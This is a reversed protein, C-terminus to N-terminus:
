RAVVVTGTAVVTGNAVARIGYTGDSLSSVVCRMAVDDGTLQMGDYLELVSRGMIDTVEVRVRRDHDVGRLIVLASSQTPNPSVLLREMAPTGREDEVSTVPPAQYDFGAIKYINGGFDGIWFNGDREDYAIGRANIVGDRGVLNLRALETSLANTRFKIIYCATLAAGASPFETCTQYLYGQGDTTLCRPGYFAQCANPQVDVLQGDTPNMVYMQRSGDREGGYLFGDVLELGTPYRRAQSNFTRLVKGTTDVVIVRGGEGSSNLLKHMYIQGTTRDYSIDSFLSDGVNAPLEVSKEVRLTTANLKYLKREYFSSTWLANVGDFAIGYPVHSVSGTQLVSGKDAIAISFTNSIKVQSADAESTIRVRGTVTPWNVVKWVTSNGVVGSALPLWSAGDDVSYEITVPPKFGQWSLVTNFSGTYRDGGYPSTIVPDTVSASPLPVEWVSRGYTAARLLNETPHVKLDAVPVRPLGRGFPMWTRGDDFSAFVGADTGIFITNEDDPHMVVTNCSVDPMGEWRSEWTKGLDTTKMLNISGYGGLAIFCTNEKTPSTAFDTVFRRPVNSGAADRFNDGDNNSVFVEGGSTGLWINASQARSVEIASIPSLYSNTIPAWFDGADFSIYLRTRGAFLLRNDEPHMIFPASWLVGDAPDIGAMISRFQNAGFDLRFMSGNYFEGFIINPNTQDVITIMGDGGVVREWDPDEISGLTGNDQTGGFNRQKASLDIDFGYFQSVQLNTNINKWSGMVGRSNSLVM